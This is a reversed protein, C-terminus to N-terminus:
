GLLVEWGWERMISSWHTKSNLFGCSDPNVNNILQDYNIFSMLNKTSDDKINNTAEVNQLEDKRKWVEKVVEYTRDVNGIWMKDSLLKWRSKCWEREEGLNAECSAVLLPFIHTICTNSSKPISALLIFIKEALAHSSLSPIEPVAQHLFLLASYRYAEATALCSSLDWTKSGNEDENELMKSNITPKWETLLHKLESAHTITHLTNRKKWKGDSKNKRIKIVLTAVKGIIPFLSQGCGLLPDVVESDYNFDDFEDFFTYLKDSADSKESPSKAELGKKEQQLMSTITAVLDVGKDDCSSDNTMQALVEFYIWINFLFHISKPIVLIDSKNLCDHRMKEYEFQDILVLKNKLQLMNVDNFDIPSNENRIKNSRIRAQEEKLLTLIKNIISKAGKLHAIGSSTQTDWSECVALNLCTVLGIDAPFDGEGGNEMKSLGSALELICRKMYTYGRSKLEETSSVVGNSGALHFLTMSAISNYLCNYRPVLPLIMNRWPNEHIGNKISMLGSTYESYLFLIQEQEASKALAKNNDFHPSPATSIEFHAPKNSLNLPSLTEVSPIDVDESNFAFNLIASLSPSLNIEFERDKTLHKKVLPQNPNIINDFNPLFVTEKPTESKEIEVIAADALSNLDNNKFAQIDCGVTSDSYSRSLVSTTPSQQPPPIIAHSYRRQPQPQIQPTTQTLAEPQLQQSVNISKTEPLVTTTSNPNFGKSILETEKAIEEISRGTVSFSALELHKQLSKDNIRPKDDNFSKWKFNTAYGGCEINKKNCNLCTPKTEDCKLRKKKCTLCGNRSKTRSKLGNVLVKKNTSDLKPKTSPKKIGTITTTSSTIGTTTNSRVSSVSTM